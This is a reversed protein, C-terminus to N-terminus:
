GCRVPVQEKDKAMKRECSCWMQCGEGMKGAEWVDEGRWGGALGEHVVAFVVGMRQVFGVAVVVEAFRSRM